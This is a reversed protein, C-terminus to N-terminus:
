TELETNRLRHLEEAMSDYDGCKDFLELIADPTFGHRGLAKLPYLDQQSGLGFCIVRARPNGGGLFEALEDLAQVSYVRFFWDSFRSDFDGM